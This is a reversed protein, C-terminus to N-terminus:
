RVEGNNETEDYVYIYATTMRGVGGRKAGGGEGRGGGGAEGLQLINLCAACVEWANKKDETRGVSSKGGVPPQEGGIM